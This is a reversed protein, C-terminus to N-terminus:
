GAPDLDPGTEAAGASPSYTGSVYRANKHRNQPDFEPRLQLDM